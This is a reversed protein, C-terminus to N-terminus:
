KYMFEGFLGLLLPGFGGDNTFLNRWINGVGGNVSRRQIIYSFYLYTLLLINFVAVVPFVSLILKGYLDATQTTVVIVTIFSILVYIIIVFVISQIFSSFKTKNFYNIIEDLFSGDLRISM